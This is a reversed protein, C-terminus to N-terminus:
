FHASHSLQVLRFFGFTEKSFFAFFTPAFVTPEQGSILVCQGLHINLFDAGLIDILEVFDNM